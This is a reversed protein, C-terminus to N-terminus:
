GHYTIHYTYIYGYLNFLPVSLCGPFFVSFIELSMNPEEKNFALVTCETSIRIFKLITIMHFRIKLPVYLVQYLLYKDNEDRIQGKGM